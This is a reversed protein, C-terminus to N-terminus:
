VNVLNPRHVSPPPAGRVAMLERRVEARLEASTLQDPHAIAFSPENVPLRLGNPTLVQFLLLAPPRQRPPPLFEVTHGPLIQSVAESVQVHLHHVGDHHMPWLIRTEGHFICATEQLRKRLERYDRYKPVNERM